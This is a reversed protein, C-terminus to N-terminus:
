LVMCKAPDSMPGQGASNVAVVSFWYYQNRNPLNDVTISARTTTGVLTWEAAPTAPDTQTAYVLYSDAKKGLSKWKLRACGPFPSTAAQLNEVEEVSAPTRPQAVGFGSSIIVTANGHSVHQVYVALERLLDMLVTYRENRLSIAEHAGTLAAENAEHLANVADTIASLAPSPTAFTPNGTMQSVIFQAREMLDVTSLGSLGMKVKAM